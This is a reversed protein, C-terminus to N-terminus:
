ECGGALRSQLYRLDKLLSPSIATSKIKVLETEVLSKIPERRSISSNKDVYGGEMRVGQAFSSAAESPAGMFSLLEGRLIFSHPDAPYSRAIEELKLLAQQHQGSKMLNEVPEYRKQIMFLRAERLLHQDTARARSVPSQTAPTTRPLFPLALSAAAVLLFAIWLSTDLKDHHM